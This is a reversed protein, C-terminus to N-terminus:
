LCCYYSSRSGTKEQLDDLFMKEIPKEVSKKDEDNNNKSSYSYEPAAYLQRRKMNDQSQDDGLNIPSLSYYESQRLIENDPLFWAVNEVLQYVCENTAICQSVTQKRLM